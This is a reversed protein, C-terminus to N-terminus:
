ITDILEVKNTRPCSQFNHLSLTKFVVANPCEPTFDRSMRTVSMHKLQPRPSTYPSRLKDSFILYIHILELSLSHVFYRSRVM